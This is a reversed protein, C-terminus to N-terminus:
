KEHELSSQWLSLGTIYLINCFSLVLVRSELPVATYMFVALPLYFGTSRVTLDVWREKIVPIVMRVGKEELLTMVALYYVYWVPGYLFIDCAVKEFIDFLTNGTNVQDILHYWAHNVFGDLFGFVAYRKLRDIAINRSEKDITEIKQASFDGVSALASFSAMDKSTSITDPTVYKSQFSAPDAFLKLIGDVFTNPDLSVITSSALNPDFVHRPSFASSPSSFGPSRLHKFGCVTSFLLSVLLLAVWM